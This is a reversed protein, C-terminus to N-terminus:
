SPSGCAGRSALSRRNPHTSRNSERDLSVQHCLQFRGLEIVNSVGLEWAKPFKRVHRDHNGEALQINLQFHRKRWDAFEGMLETSISDRNHILDGLIVLQDPMLQLITASLQDLTKRNMGVPVPIGAARFSADKGLHLDAVLLARELPMWITGDGRLELLQGDIEIPLSTTPHPTSDAAM